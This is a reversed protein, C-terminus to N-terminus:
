TEVFESKCEKRSFLVINYVIIYPLFVVSAIAYIGAVLLWFLFAFLDAVGPRLKQNHPPISLLQRLEECTMDIAKEDALINSYLNTSRRGRVFARFMGPLNFWIGMVMSYFNLAWAIWYRRCGSAVEWAGIETEGRMDSPYGTIVHHVDHKLIAKKRVSFNPIYLYFKRTIEIKVKSDHLGGDTDLNYQKYFQPLLDRITDEGHTAM